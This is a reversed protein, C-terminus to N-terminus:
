QKLTKFTVVPGYILLNETRVFSRVYYIQDNKLSQINSSFNKGSLSENIAVNDHLDVKPPIYENWTFGYQVVESTNGSIVEANFKAGSGTIQSVALTNLRPYNRTIAEDKRCTTILQLMMLSYFIIRLSTFKQAIAKFISVQM